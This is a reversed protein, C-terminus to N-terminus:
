PVFTRTHNLPASFGGGAAGYKGAAEWALEFLSRFSDAIEVHEVLVAMIRGRFSVISLLPGHAAFSARFPFRDPPIYRSERLLARDEEPTIRPGATTYVHRSHVGAQVRVDVVVRRYEDDPFLARIDDHSAVGVIPEKGAAVFIQQLTQLGEKGEFLRTRPREEGRAYASLLEPVLQKAETRRREVDRLQQAFYRDLREPSEAAFLMKKADPGTAKSVIGKRVLGELIVYTTPRVVGARRAIAQVSATGLQLLALYVAAEKPALGIRRLDDVLPM